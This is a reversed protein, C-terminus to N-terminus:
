GAQKEEVPPPLWLQGTGSAAQTGAPRHLGMERPVVLPSTGFAVLGPQAHGVESVLM